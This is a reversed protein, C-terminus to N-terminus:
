KIKLDFSITSRPNYQMEVGIRGLIIESCKPKEM